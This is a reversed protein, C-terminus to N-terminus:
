LLRPNHRLSFSLDLHNNNDCRDYINITRFFFEGNRFDGFASNAM